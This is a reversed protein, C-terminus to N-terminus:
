NADAPEVSVGNGSPRQNLLGRVLEVFQKRTAPEANQLILTLNNNVVKDPEPNLPQGDAGTNEVRLAFEDRKKRELYKLAYEPQNLSRVLTQKAKLIPNQKLAEKRDSFAPNREAYYYLTDKSIGAFASAEIDTAGISFAYELKALVEPTIVTPRGVPNAVVIKTKKRKATAMNKIKYITAKPNKPEGLIRM